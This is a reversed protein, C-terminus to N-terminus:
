DAYSPRHQDPNGYGSMQIYPYFNRYYNELDYWEELPAPLIPLRKVALLFLCICTCIFSLSIIIELVTPTYYAVIGM